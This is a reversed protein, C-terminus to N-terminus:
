AHGSVSSLRDLDVGIFTAAARWRETSPLDFIIQSDAPGSLWANDILEDELQGAGWGSYGLAILTKEPGEGEAIARLIDVSTTISIDRTITLTSDWNSDNTHLVFGRDTQVPGGVYVTQEGASSDINQIDLQGLIDNLHLDTPRNLTIGMTGERNHECIYTVTHHFNQDALTPMAILFHNTLNIQDSMGVLIPFQSLSRLGPDSM